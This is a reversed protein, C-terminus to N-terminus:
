NENAEIEEAIKNTAEELIEFCKRKTDEFPIEECFKETVKTQPTVCNDYDEWYISECYMENSCEASTGYDCVDSELDEAIASGSFSLAIAAVIASKRIKM